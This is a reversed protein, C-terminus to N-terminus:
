APRGESMPIKSDLSMVELLRAVVCPAPPVRLELRYGLRDLTEAKELIAGLITADLFECDLLDVLVSGCLPALAVRMAERTALDHEGHLAVCADYDGTRARDHYVDISRISAQTSRAVPAAYSTSSM